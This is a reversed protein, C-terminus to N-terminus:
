KIILFMEMALLFYHPLFLNLHNHRYLLDQFNYVWRIWYYPWLLLAFVSFDYFIMKLQHHFLNQYNELELDIIDTAKIKRIFLM